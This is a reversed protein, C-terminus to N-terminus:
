ICCWNCGNTHFYKIIQNTNPSKMIKTPNMVVCSIDSQWNLLSYIAKLRIVTVGVKRFQVLVKSGLWDFSLQIADELKLITMCGTDIKVWTCGPEGMVIVVGQPVETREKFCLTSISLKGGSSTPLLPPQITLPPWIISIPPSPHLPPATYKNVGETRRRGTQTIRWATILASILLHWLDLSWWNCPAREALIVQWLHHLYSVCPQSSPPPPPSMIMYIFFNCTSLSVLVMIM